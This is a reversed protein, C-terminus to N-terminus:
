SDPVLRLGEQRCSVQGYALRQVFGPSLLSIRWSVPRRLGRRIWSTKPRNKRTKSTDKQLLGSVLINSLNSLDRQGFGGERALGTETM